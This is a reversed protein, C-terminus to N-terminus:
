GLATAYHSSSRVRKRRPPRSQYFSKECDAVAMDFDLNVAAQLARVFTETPPTSSLGQPRSCYDSGGDQSVEEAHNRLPSPNARSREEFCSEFVRTHFASFKMALYNVLQESSAPPGVVHSGEMESRYALQVLAPNLYLMQQCVGTMMTYRTSMHTIGAMLSQQATAMEALPERLTKKKKASKGDREEDSREPQGGKVWRLSHQGRRDSAQFLSRSRPAQQYSEFKQCTTWNICCFSSSM